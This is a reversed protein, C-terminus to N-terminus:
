FIPLIVLGREAIWVGIQTRSTFRLKDLIHEIHAAVMRQGVQHRLREPEPTPSSCTACVSSNTQASVM